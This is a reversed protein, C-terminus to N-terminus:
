KVDVGDNQVSGILNSPLLALLLMIVSGVTSLCPISIIVFLPLLFWGSFGIDRFRRATTSFFVLLLWLYAPVLLAVSAWFLWPIKCFFFIIPLVSVILVEILWFFIMKIWEGRTAYGLFAFPKVQARMLPGWNQAFAPGTETLSKVLPKEMFAKMKPGGFLLGNVKEIPAIRLFKRPKSNQENM